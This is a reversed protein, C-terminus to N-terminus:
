SVLVELSRNRNPAISVKSGDYMTITLSFIEGSETATTEIKGVNKDILAEKIKEIEEDLQNM